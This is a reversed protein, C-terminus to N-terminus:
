LTQTCVHADLRAKSRLSKLCQSCKFPEEGTHTREHVQCNYSQKFGLGCFSCIFPKEGTHINRVHRTLVPETRFSMDCWTCKFPREGTHIRFHVELYSLSMYSKPCHSCKYPKLGAHFKLHVELGRKDKFRKDCQSCQFPREDTHFLAHRRLHTSQRFVKNCKTCKYPKHEKHTRLHKNLHRKTLFHKECYLCSLNGTHIREHGQLTEKLRFVKGCTSCQFRKEGSHIVVHRTLSSKQTFAMQCVLCKFQKKEHIIQHGILTTESAFSKTCFGCKFQREKHTSKHSKRARNEPAEEGGQPQTSEDAVVPGELKLSKVRHGKRPSNRPRGKKGVLNDTVSSEKVQSTLPKVPKFEFTEGQKVVTRTLKLAPWADLGGMKGCGQLGACVSLTKTPEVVRKPVILIAAKTTGDKKALVLSAHMSTASRKPQVVYTNPAVSALADGLLSVDGPLSADESKIVTASVSVADAALASTETETTVPFAISDINTKLRDVQTERVWGATRTDAESKEAGADRSVDDSAPPDWQTEKTISNYYYIMGSPNRAYKWNLRLTKKPQPWGPPPPPPLDNFEGVSTMQIQDELTELEMNCQEYQVVDLDNIRITELSDVAIQLAEQSFFAQQGAHLCKHDKLVEKQHFALNCHSCKHLTISRPSRKPEDESSSSPSSSSSSLPSSQKDGSHVLEHKTLADRRQFEEGCHSCEYPKEGTHIREHQSLKSKTTYQKGCHLCQYPREGSHVRFHIAMASKRVFTKECHLCKYPRINAHAREHSQWTSYATFSKGCVSCVFPKEGTHLRLHTTLTSRQRFRKECQPCKFDKQQTHTQEHLKVASKEKFTKSCISCSFPREGTHTREHADLHSKRYFQKLCFSCTLKKVVTHVREHNQCTKRDLFSKGCICCLYPRETNHCQSHTKLRGINQFVKGCEQCKFEKHKRTHILEHKKSASLEKAAWGCISCIYPREDTHTRLHANFHGKHHFKKGCESHTCEFRKEATHRAEHVQCTSKKAFGKGCITCVYQKDSTHVHMHSALLGERQFRKGCLKCKFAREESHSQEHKTCSNKLAFRKECLKCQYPKEGTHVRKHTKLQKKLRFTKDCDECKYPKEGSHVREHEKCPVSKAFKKGCFSCSHLLKQKKTPKQKRSTQEPNHKLTTHMKLGGQTGFQKRCLSCKFAAEKLHCKHALLAKWNGFLENCQNCQMKKPALKKKTNGDEQSKPMEAGGPTVEHTPSTDDTAVGDDSSPVELASFVSSSAVLGLASMSVEQASLPKSRPSKPKAKASTSKLKASKASTTKRRASTSKFNASRPLSSAKMSKLQACRPRLRGSKATEIATSATSDTPELYKVVMFKINNSSSSHLAEEAVKKFIDCSTVTEEDPASLHENTPTKGVAAVAKCSVTGDKRVESSPSVQTPKLIAGLNTADRTVGDSLPPTWQTEKTIRNYYYVMGTADKAYRWNPPLPAPSYPPPPPPPEDSEGSVTVKPEEM